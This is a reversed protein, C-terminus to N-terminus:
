ISVRACRLLERLHSRSAYRAQVCCRTQLLSCMASRNKWNQLVRPSQVSFVIVVSLAGTAPLVEVRRVTTIVSDAHPADGKTEIARQRSAVLNLAVKSSGQGSSGVSEDPLAVAGPRHLYRERKVIRAHIVLITLGALFAMAIVISMHALKRPLSAHAKLIAAVPLALNESQARSEGDDSQQKAISGQFSGCIACFLSTSPVPAGCTRCHRPPLSQCQIHEIQSPITKEEPNLAAKVLRRLKEIIESSLFISTEVGESSHKRLKADPELMAAAVPPGACPVRKELCIARDLEAAKLAEYFRSVSKM